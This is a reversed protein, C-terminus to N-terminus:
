PLLRGSTLSLPDFDFSKSGSGIPEDPPAVNGDSDGDNPAEVLPEIGDDEIPESGDDALPEIGAGIGCSAGASDAGGGFRPM